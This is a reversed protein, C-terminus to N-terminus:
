AAPLKLTSRPEDDKNIWSLRLDIADPPPLVVGLPGDDEPEDTDVGAPPEAAVAGNLSSCRSHISFSMEIRDAGRGM